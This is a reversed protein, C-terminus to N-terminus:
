TLGRKTFIVEYMTWFLAIQSYKIFGMMCGYDRNSLFEEFCVIASDSKNFALVM